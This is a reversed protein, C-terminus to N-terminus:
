MLADVNDPLRPSTCGLVEGPSLPKCQPVIVAFTKHGDAENTADVATLARHADQLARVFQVTSILALTRGHDFHRRVTDVFHQTNTRIDVFVYLVHFGVTDQIPVLCSHGYHIIMDCGLERATLDDICCAGYTVDGMIVTDCSTYRFRRDNSM